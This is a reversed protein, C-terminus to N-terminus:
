GAALDVVVRALGVAALAAGFLAGALVVLPSTVLVAAIIASRKM